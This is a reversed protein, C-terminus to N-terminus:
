IAHDWKLLHVIQLSKLMISVQLKRQM